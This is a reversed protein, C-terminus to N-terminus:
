EAIKFNYTIIGAVKVPQGSLKTPAFRAQRAAQIASQQLMQSGSTARASIVKGQEDIVVEVSVTGGARVRRATEPYVPAPLSIASGNLVGGSIPKMLPKPMLRAPAAAPPEESVTKAVAPANVPATGAPVVNPMDLPAAIGSKGPTAISASPLAPLPLPPKDVAAKVPAPQTAKPTAAPLVVAAVATNAAPAQSLNLMNQDLYYSITRYTTETQEFNLKGGEIVAVSTTMKTWNGAFDFEYAYSEKSLLTGDGNVLTMESINGKDDYKYVEKGTLTAGAVPYYATEIKAGKIDYAAAELLARTGEVFKGGKNSLKVVETRVRRVPGALGDRTRDTDAPAAAVPTGSPKDLAAMTPPTSQAAAPFLAGATCFLAALLIPKTKKFM